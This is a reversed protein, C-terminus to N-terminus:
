GNLIRKFEEPIDIKKRHSNICVHVIQANAAEEGKLYFTYGLRFSSEKVEIFKLHIDVEDETKLPMMFNSEVHVVPMFYDREEFRSQLSYNKEKLYASLTEHTLQFLAGYFIYGSADTHYLQISTKHKFLNM